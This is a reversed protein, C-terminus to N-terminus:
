LCHKNVGEIIRDLEEDTQVKGCGPMTLKSHVLTGGAYVEFAGAGGLPHKETTITIKDGQSNFEEQL